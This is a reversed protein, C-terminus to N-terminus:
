NKRRYNIRLGTTWSGDEAQISSTFVKHDKSKIELVEKFKSLTGPAAPCPGESNLTLIKGTEDLQGEYKWLFGTMSDVWTGVFRESDADYGLTMIGTFPLGMLDGQNEALTWFGGISRVKETGKSKVPPQVPEMFMEVESDWEGVLQQLWEHQKTPKPFEPVEGAWCVSAAVAVLVAFPRFVSNTSM